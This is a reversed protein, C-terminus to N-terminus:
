AAPCGLLLDRASAVDAALAVAGGLEGPAAYGWGAGIVPIGAEAGGEVDWSRDGLLVPRATPVGAGDLRTLADRIVSAKSCSPDPTAGAIVHFHHALGLHELQSRAMYEQKSTATALVVGADDLDTLLQPIGPFVEPELYLTHYIERYHVVAEDLDAGLLGLGTFSTVLPPGVFAALESETREPLGLDSLTQRFARIVVDASDVLTGDVDFLVTTWPPTTVRDVTPSVPLGGHGIM